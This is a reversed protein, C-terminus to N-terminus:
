PIDYSRRSLNNRIAGVAGIHHPRVVLDAQYHKNEDSFGENPGFRDVNNNQRRGSADTFHRHGFDLQM